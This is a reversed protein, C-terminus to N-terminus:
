PQERSAKNSKKIKHQEIIALDDIVFFIRAGSWAKWGRKIASSFRLELTEWSSSWL